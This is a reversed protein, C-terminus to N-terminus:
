IQSFCDIKEVGSQDIRVHRASFFLFHASDAGSNLFTKYHVTHNSSFALSEETKGEAHLKEYRASRLSWLYDEPMACSSCRAKSSTPSNFKNVGLQDQLYRVFM